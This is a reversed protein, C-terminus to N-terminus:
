AVIAEAQVAGSNISFTEFLASTDDTNFTGFELTLAGATVNNNLANGFLALATLTPADFTGASHGTETFGMVYKRAQRRLSVTFMKVLAAAGHPLMNTVDTGDASLLVGQAKGDWQNLTFDWVSIDLTSGLVAVNVDQDIEVWALELQTIIAGLVALDTASTGATVLYHYVLQAITGDPIDWEAVVRVVDNLLVTL